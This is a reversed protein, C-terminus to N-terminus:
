WDMRALDALADLGEGFGQVAQLNLFPESSSTWLRSEIAILKQVVPQRGELARWRSDGRRSTDQRVRYAILLICLSAM